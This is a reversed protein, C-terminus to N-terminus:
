EMTEGKLNCVGYNMGDLFRSTLTGSDHKSKGLVSLCVKYTFEIRFKDNNAKIKALNDKKKFPLVLTM